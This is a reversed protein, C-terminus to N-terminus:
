EIVEDARVLLIKPFTLGLAKATKTNIVLQVKVARQVPLDAPKEGKLIRGVYNGAVRSPETLDVGYSMLGGATVYHRFPYIAPIAYQGALAVIQARRSTFFTDPIVDVAGVKRTAMTEFALKLDGDASAEFAQSDWQMERAAAQVVNFSFAPNSRNVLLGLLAATPVLERLFELAKSDVAGGTLNTAGTVNGGPRNLSAVLGVRVPDGGGQFVIPITTTAAKAAIAPLLGGSACIVAVRQNVLDAALAPLRDYRGEAWRYEINVNRGEVFGAERLGQLIAPLTVNDSQGSGLFGIVPLAPQQAGATLPQTAAASLGAIFDRRRL